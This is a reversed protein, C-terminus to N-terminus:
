RGHTSRAPAAAPDAFLAALDDLFVVVLATVIAAGLTLAVGAPRPAAPEIVAAAAGAAAVFCLVANRVVHRIGIAAQSTGFCQCPVRVGARAVLVAGCAFVALAAAALALGAPVTWPLTLLLVAAAEAGAMLVAAARRAWAPLVPLEAVWSAFGGFARRSRLKGVASVAFVMGALCRSFLVLYGM